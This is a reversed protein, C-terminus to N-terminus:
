LNAFELQLTIIAFSRGRESRFSTVNELGGSLL